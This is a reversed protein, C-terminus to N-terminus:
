REFCDAPLGGCGVLRDAPAGKARDLLDARCRAIRERFGPRRLRLYVASRSLDALKAASVVSRGAALHFVLISDAAESDTWKQASVDMGRM